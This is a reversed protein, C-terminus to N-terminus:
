KQVEPKVAQSKNLVYKNLFYFGVILVVGLLGLAISIKLQTNGVDKLIDKVLPVLLDNKLAPLTKIKGNAFDILRSFALKTILISTVFFITSTVALYIGFIKPTRKWSGAVPRSLLFIVVLLIPFIFFINGLIPSVKSRVDQAGKFKGKLEPNPETFKQIDFENPINGAFLFQTSANGKQEELFEKLLEDFSKGQIRCTKLDYKFERPDKCYPLAEYKQRFGALINDSLKQRVDAIPIPKLKKGGFIWPWVSDIAAETKEQLTKETITNYFFAAIEQPNFVGQPGPDGKEADPGEMGEKPGMESLLEPINKYIISYANLERLESKIYEPSFLTLKLSLTLLTALYIPVLVALLLISLAKAMKM